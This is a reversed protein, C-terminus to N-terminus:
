WGEVRGTAVVARLAAILEDLAIALADRAVAGGSLDGARALSELAAACERTRAGGVAAAAGKLSHAARQLEAGDAGALAADVAGLMRPAEDLFVSAVELYISLDRDVARGAAYLDLIRACSGERAESSSEV